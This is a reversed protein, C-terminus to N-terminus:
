IASRTIRSCVLSKSNFPGRFYACIGSIPIVLQGWLTTARLISATTYNAFRSNLNTLFQTPVRLTNYELTDLPIFIVPMSTGYM